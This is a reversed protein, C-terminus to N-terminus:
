NVVEIYRSSLWGYVPKNIRPSKGDKLRAKEQESDIFYYDAINKKINNDMRVFWWIRGTKDKYEAMAVGKDGKALELIVNGNQEDYSNDSDNGNDIQPTKRLNYKDNLVKFTKNITLEKPFDTGDYFYTNNISVNNKTILLETYSALYPWVSYHYQMSSHYFVPISSNSLFTKIIKYHSNNYVKEFQGNKNLYIEIGDGNWYGKIHLFMDMLGDGNLDTYYTSGDLVYQYYNVKGIFKKLEPTRSMIDIVMSDSVEKYLTPLNIEQQSEFFMQSSLRNYESDQSKLHSFSFIWYLILFIIATKNKM